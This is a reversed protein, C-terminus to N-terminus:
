EGDEELKSSQDEFLPEMPKNCCIPTSYKNADTSNYEIARNCKKCKAKYLVLNEREIIFQKFTLSESLGLEKKFLGNVLSWYQKDIINSRRIGKAQEKARDWAAEVQQVTKKSRKAYSLILPTPM